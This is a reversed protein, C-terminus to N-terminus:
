RWTPIMNQFVEPLSATREEVEEGAMFKKWQGVDGGLDKGTLEKLAVTTSHQVGPSRDNLQTVLFQKVDDGRHSGLSEIAALRVRQDKDTKAMALLASTAEPSSGTRLAKAVVLRVKDNKDTSQGAIANIAEQRPTVAALALVIERRIEPSTENPLISSLTAVYKTQEEESMYKFRSKTYRIEEVRQSFVPAIARDKKWQQQIIPNLKKLEFLPGDVCGPLLLCPAM